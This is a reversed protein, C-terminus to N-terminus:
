GAKRRARRPAERSVISDLRAALARTGREIAVYTMEQIMRDNKTKYLWEFFACHEDPTAFTHVYVREIRPGRATDLWLGFEVQREDELRNVATATHIGPLQEAM